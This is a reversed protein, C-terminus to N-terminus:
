RITQDVAYKGREKVSRRYCLELTFTKEALYLHKWRQNMLLFKVTTGRWPMIDKALERQIDMRELQECRPYLLNIDAGGKNRQRLATSWLASDIKGELETMETIIYYECVPTKTGRGDFTSREM